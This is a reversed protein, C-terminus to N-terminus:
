HYDTMTLPIAMWGDCAVRFISLCVPLCSIVGNTFQEKATQFRNQLISGAQLPTSNEVSPNRMADKPIGDAPTQKGLSAKPGNHMHMIDLPAGKNSITATPNATRETSIRSSHSSNTSIATHVPRENARRSPNAESPDVSRMFCEYSKILDDALEIGKDVLSVNYSNTRLMPTSGNDNSFYPSCIMSMPESALCSYQTQTRVAPNLEYTRTRAISSCLAVMRDEIVASNCQQVWVSNRSLASGLSQKVGSDASSSYGGDYWAHVHDSTM